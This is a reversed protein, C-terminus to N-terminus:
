LRVRLFVVSRGAIEDLPGSGAGVPDRGHRQASDEGVPLILQQAFLALDQATEAGGHRPEVRGGFM